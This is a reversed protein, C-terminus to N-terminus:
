CGSTAEDEQPSCAASTDTQKLRALDELFISKQFALDQLCKLNEELLPQPEEPLRYITWNANRVSEIMQHRKLYNLQKSVKPQPEGLIHQVHCVCLPGQQLLNLIRLRTRDCLCKYVSIYEEM